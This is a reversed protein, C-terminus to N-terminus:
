SADTLLHADDVKALRDEAPGDGLHVLVLLDAGGIEAAAPGFQVLDRDRGLASPHRHALVSMDRPPRKTRREPPRWEGREQLDLTEGGPYPSVTTNRSTLRVTPVPETTATSPGLPAPFVVRSLAMDPSKRGLAPVIVSLPSAM